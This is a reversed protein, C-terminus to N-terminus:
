RSEIDKRGAKEVFVARLRILEGGSFVEAFGNLKDHEVLTGVHLKPVKHWEDAELPFVEEWKAFRVIDGEKM